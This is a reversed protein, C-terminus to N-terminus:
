PTFLRKLILYNSVYFKLIVSRCFMYENNELSKCPDPRSRNGDSKTSTTKPRALYRNSWRALAYIPYGIVAVALLIFGILAMAPPLLPWMERVFYVMGLVMAATIGLAALLAIIDRGKIM